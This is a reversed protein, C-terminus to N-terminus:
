HGPPKPALAPASLFHEKERGAALSPTPHPLSSVNILCRMNVLRLSAHYISGGLLASSCCGQLFGLVEGEAPSPRSGPAEQSVDTETAVARQCNFEWAWRKIPNPHLSTHFHPPNTPPLSQPALNYSISWQCSVAPKTKQFAPPM